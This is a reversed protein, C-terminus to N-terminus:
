QRAANDVQHYEDFIARLESQPIGIGTDWIGIRMQGPATPM